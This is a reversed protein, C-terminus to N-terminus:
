VGCCAASDLLEFTGRAGDYHLSFESLADRGLIVQAEGLLLEDEACFGRDIRVRKGGVTLWFPRLRRVITRGVICGVTALENTVLFFEHALNQAVWSHGAGTDVFARVGSRKGFVDGEVDVEVIPGSCQLRSRAAQLEMHAEYDLDAIM